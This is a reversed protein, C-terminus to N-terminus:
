VLFKFVLFLSLGLIFSTLLLALIVRTYTTEHVKKYAIISLVMSWLAGVFQGIGPIIGLILPSSAYSIARFTGEFGKNGARFISLFLHNLGAALFLAGTLLLPYFILILLSGFGMASLGVLGGLQANEQQLHPFIGLMEWLFTFIAQVEALLLYYVLPKGFGNFEMQSFFKGPSFLTKKLTLFFGPFFGYNELHEWPIEEKPDTKQEKEVKEESLVQPDEEPKLGELKEWLGEAQPKEKKEKEELSSEALVEQTPEEEVPTPTIEPERKVEKEQSFSPIFSPAPEAKRFEFKHACKPCTARTAKPPIKEEPVDRSFGCNPCSIKM